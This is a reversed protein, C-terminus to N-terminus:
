KRWLPTCLQEEVVVLFPVLRHFFRDEHGDGELGAEGNPHIGIRNRM